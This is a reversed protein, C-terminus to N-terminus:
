TFLLDLDAYQQRSRTGWGFENRSACKFSGEDGYGGGYPTRCGDFGKRQTFEWMNGAMDYINKVKYNENSGTKIASVTDTIQNGNKDYGYRGMGTSNWIYYAGAVNPNRVDKMWKLIAEWQSGYIMSSVVSDNHLKKAENYFTFWNSGKGNVITSGNMPDVNGKCAVMSGTWSTEYRGVYFGKYINASTKMAEYEDPINSTTENTDTPEVSKDSENHILYVKGDNPDENVVGEIPVWVFENGFKDVVILGDDKKTGEVYAFGTPIPVGDVVKSVNGNYQSSEMSTGLASNLDSLPMGSSASYFDILAEQQALSIQDNEIGRENSKKADVARTLIGNNGAVM